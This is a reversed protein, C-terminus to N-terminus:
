QQHYVPYIIGLLSIPSNDDLSYNINPFLDKLYDLDNLLMKDDSLNPSDSASPNETSTVDRLYKFMIAVKM